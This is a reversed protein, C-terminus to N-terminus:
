KQNLSFRVPALFDGANMQAYGQLRYVVEFTAGSGRADSSFVPYEGTQVPSFETLNTQGKQGSPIEVQVTFYKSDFEKGQKNTMNTQLSQLVQYPKHLNSLVTVMVAQEQPPSNVLVHSFNVGGAPPTISMSFVPPIECQINVPFEQKGQDTEVVYKIKGTYVGADQEQVQDANVLFYIVFNDADKSSYYILSRSSALSSLGQIRLGETQGEASLQLIGTGLAQVTEDQLPDEVEQYIRVEQGLNGSFSLTVYDATRESTDSSKIHVWTPNHAGKVSIKLSPSTELLVDITVQDSSANGMGRVTFTLRGRFTGGANILGQNLSYGITFADSTGSQGSSYVLQDSMGLHDTNQLFLTGYSNSNSLTQAEIAQLNLTDGKEDMMPELVRQFVQYRDGGTSNIRIRIEQKNDPGALPVKGFRLTNSGDIPSVSLSVDAFSAQTLGVLSFVTILFVAKFM